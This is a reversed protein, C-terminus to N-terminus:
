KGVRREESRAGDFIEASPPSCSEARQKRGPSPFARFAHPPAPFGHVLTKRRSCPQFPQRTDAKECDREYQSYTNHPGLIHRPQAGVPEKESQDNAPDGKSDKM